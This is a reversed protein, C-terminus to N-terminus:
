TARMRILVAEDVRHAPITEPGTFMGLVLPFIATDMSTMAEAFHRRRAARGNGAEITAASVLDAILRLRRLREFREVGYAAFDGARRAGALVLDRVIRADRLAISLGCGIGPDNHGAADGILVVGDAYPRDTWSDTGPFVGCPGAPQAHALAAAVPSGAGTADALFQAIGADGVYRTRLALPIVHYARARGRGQHFM